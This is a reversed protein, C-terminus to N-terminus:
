SLREAARAAEGSELAARGEALSAEFVEADIDGPAVALLYGGAVTRLMPERGESRPPELVARLRAIAMQLRKVAAEPRSGPGGWVLDILTDSSLARNANIVLAALLVVQRQGGLSVARGGDCAEIPGLIRFTTM